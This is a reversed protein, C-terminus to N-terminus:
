SEIQGLNAHIITGNVVPNECAFKITSAIEEPKILRGYASLNGVAELAEMSGGVHERLMETDTFGPCICATHIGSGALDQCTARMMGIVAHKSSVYSYSNKVAKESLTSGIYIISSGSSMKPILFRNLMQPAVVNLALVRSFQEQDLTEINDNLLVAANHILNIEQTKIRAAFAEINRVADENSLDLMVDSVGALRSPTRSLNMVEGDKESFLKATAKGIGKSAGTIVTLRM